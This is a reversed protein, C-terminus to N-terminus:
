LESVKLGNKEWRGFAERIHLLIFDVKLKM